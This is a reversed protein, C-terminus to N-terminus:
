AAHEVREEIGNARAIADATAHQGMARFHAIREAPTLHSPTIRRSRAKAEKDALEDALAQVALCNREAHAAREEPSEARQEPTGQKPALRLMNAIAARDRRLADAEPRVLDAIEAVSPWWKFTMAAERQTAPTWCCPPLHNLVSAMARVAVRLDEGQPARAVLVALPAIWRAIIAPDTHELAANLRRHAAEAETRMWSSIPAPTLDPHPNTWATIAERLPQSMAIPAVAPLNSM